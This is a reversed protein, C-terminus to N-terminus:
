GSAPNQTVFFPELQTKCSNFSLSCELIGGGLPLEVIFGTLRVSFQKM